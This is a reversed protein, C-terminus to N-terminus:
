LFGERVMPQGENRERSKSVPARNELRASGRETGCFLLIYEKRGGITVYCMHNKEAQFLKEWRVGGEPELECM